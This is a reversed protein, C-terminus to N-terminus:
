GWSMSVSNVIPDRVPKYIAGGYHLEPDPRRAACAAWTNPCNPLAAVALGDELDAGGWLLTVAGTAQNHGMIPREEVIGDTRTWYLTGGLLTFETGIFGPVTLTLGDVGDEDIEGAQWFGRTYATVQVGPALDGVDEALTLTTGEHATIARRHVIEPDSSDFWEVYGGVFTRKPNALAVATITDGTVATLQAPVPYGGAPLNCGRIGTSYVTKFCARQWKAGQNAASGHPSNPDCNLELQADDFAPQVAYGMWEVAPPEGSEPRFSLCIVTIEDSPIYPRWWDGLEQTVPWGDPPESPSLLYAARIRLKDKAKEATQRIADREIQAAFYVHGGVQVDRDAAAYRLTVGQRRFIFLHLEADLM